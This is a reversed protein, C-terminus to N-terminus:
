SVKGRRRCKANKEMIALDHKWAAIQYKKFRAVGEKDYGAWYPINPFHKKMLRAARWDTYLEARLATRVFSRLKKVTWRKSVAHYDLFKGDRYALVHSAEHFVLSLFKQISIPEKEEGEAVKLEVKSQDSLAWGGWRYTNWRIHYKIGNDALFQVAFKYYKSSKRIPKFYFPRKM